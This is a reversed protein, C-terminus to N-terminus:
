PLPDAQMAEISNTLLANIYDPNHVGLSRDESLGVWNFFAQAHLMPYTGVVPEYADDDPHYEVVGADVLLDRLTNLKTQTEAQVNRYNFDSTTHCANCSAVNPIWTHGGAGNTHEGMHCTVCTAGEELHLSTSPYAFSGPIEAFGFGALVNAQAGHHPGYHSSTITYTEGPSDINPEPRRSQHCNACLNSNSAFDASVSPDAIFPVPDIQRLAYDSEEFTTHVSHCHSCGIAEPVNINGNVDGTEVYEVFGGGSHCRACSSRGGAYDVYEGLAHQSRAYQLSIDRKAETNHCSLCTVNGDVGDTGDAGDTGDTGDVGDQGAPGAPGM